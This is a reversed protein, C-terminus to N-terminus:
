FDANWEAAAEQARARGYNWSRIGTEDGSIREFFYVGEELIECKEFVDADIQAIVPVADESLSYMMYRIDDAGLEETNAANYSAIVADIHSFSFVTYCVSVVAMIYRFLRFQERFISCIVGFFVLMLTGLFWLVLVRLFTLNYESVYLIMRYAASVIMVCTCLSIIGLLVKLIRSSEFVRVCILVAGFNIISVFLLQWFGEHAYESYTMGDPLADGMRLFLFLIQVVSYLVYILALVAAFTIGTVANANISTKGAEVDLNKKFLAAFFAYLSIMGLFFTFLIGTVNGVDIKEFLVTIDIFRFISIFMQSFVRDSMLLLPFVIMMFLCAILIGMAVPGANKNKILRKKEKEEAPKEKKKMNQFPAPISILWEGTIKFFNKVYVTFDWLKDEYIQHFMVVILLLLIGVINFFHFFGNATLCTSIGLLIIVAFYILSDKKIRIEARNLFAAAFLVSVVTMVPFTVGSLNRYLCVTFILGYLCSMWFYWRNDQKLRLILSNDM